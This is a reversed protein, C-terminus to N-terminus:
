WNRSEVIQDIRGLVHSLKKKATVLSLIDKDSLTTDRFQQNSTSLTETQTEAQPETHSTIINELAAKLDESQDALPTVSISDIADESKELKFKAEPISLKENFLLDKIKEILEIDEQKYIKSGDELYTPNIGNFETEWFRLVYPKVSTISTVENFKYSDKKPIGIDFNM